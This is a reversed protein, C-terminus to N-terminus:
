CLIVWLDLAFYSFSPNDSILSKTYSGDDDNDIIGMGHLEFIHKGYAWAYSAAAWSYFTNATQYMRKLLGKQSQGVGKKTIIITTRSRIWSDTQM